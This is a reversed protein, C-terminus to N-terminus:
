RDASVSRRDRMQQGHIKTRKRVMISAFLVILLVASVGALLVITYDAPHPSTGQSANEGDPNYTLNINTSVQYYEFSLCDIGHVIHAFVATMSLTIRHEWTLNLPTISWMMCCYTYAMHLPLASYPVQWLVGAITTTDGYNLIGTPLEHMDVVGASSIDDIIIESKDPNIPRLVELEVQAISYSSDCNYSDKFDANINLFLALRADGGMPSVTYYDFQCIANLRGYQNEAANVVTLNTGLNAPDGSGPPSTSYVTYFHDAM